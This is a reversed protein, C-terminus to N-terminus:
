QNKSILSELCSLVYKKCILLNASVEYDSPEHEDSYANKLPCNKRFGFENCFNCANFESCSFIFDEFKTNM